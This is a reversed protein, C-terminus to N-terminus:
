ILICSLHFVNFPIKNKVFQCVQSRIELDLVHTLDKLYDKSLQTEKDQLITLKRRKPQKQQYFM